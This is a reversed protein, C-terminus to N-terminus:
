RRRTRTQTMITNNNLGGNVIGPLIMPSLSMSWLVFPLTTQDRSTYRCIIEWWRMSLERSKQTNKWGIVPLEYLGNNDPYGTKIFDDKQKVLLDCHDVDLKICEDIEKYVCDRERHKFVAIDSNKLYKEVISFPSEIVECVSDVWLYYDYGPIMIQPMIKYIKANRRNKFRGDITFDLIQKQNWIHVNHIKDSFSIYDVGSHVISPSYLEDGVGATIIAIKM